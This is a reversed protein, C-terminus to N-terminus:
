QWYRGGEVGEVCSFPPPSKLSIDRKFIRDTESAMSYTKTPKMQRGTQSVLNDILLIYNKIKQIKGDKKFDILSVSPVFQHSRYYIYTLQFIHYKNKVRM